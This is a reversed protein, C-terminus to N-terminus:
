KTLLSPNSVIYIILLELRLPEIELGLISGRLSPKQRDLPRIGHPKDVHFELKLSELEVHVLWTSNPWTSRSNKLSPKSFTFGLRLFELKLPRNGIMDPQIHPQTGTHDYWLHSHAQTSSDSVIHGCSAIFIQILGQSDIWLIYELLMLLLFM